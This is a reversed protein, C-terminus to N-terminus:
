ANAVDFALESATLDIVPVGYHHLDAIFQARSVGALTAAMGSYLRKIEFFKAAMAFKAESPFEQPTKQVADLMEAPVDVLIEM